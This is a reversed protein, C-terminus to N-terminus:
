CPTDEHQELDVFAPNDEGINEVMNQDIFLTQPRPRSNNQDVCNRSSTSTSLEDLEVVAKSEIDSRAPFCMIGCNTPTGPTGLRSQTRSEKSEKMWRPPAKSKKPLIIKPMERDTVELSCVYWFIMFMLAFLICIGGLYGLIDFKKRLALGIALLAIGAFMLIIGLIFPCLCKRYNVTRDNKTSKYNQEEEIIIANEHNTFNTTKGPEAHFRSPYRLELRSVVGSGTQSHRRDSTASRYESAISHEDM